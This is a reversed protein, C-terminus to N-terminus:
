IQEALRFVFERGNEYHNGNYGDNIFIVYPYNGINIVDLSAKLGNLGTGKKFAYGITADYTFHSPLREALGPGSSLGGGFYGTGTIWLDGPNYTLGFNVTHIEAHDLPQYIGQPPLLAQTFAFDGGSIGEGEALSYTYNAFDSWDKDLKGRLSVEIGQAYGQAYNFPQDIGTNLLQSEDLMNTALKLYGNLTFLHTGMQQAWGAEFYDDKEAKINYPVLAQGVGLAVFTDKLDEPPAPMFQKGYFLHFKTDDSALISLGIRPGWNSDDDQVQGSAGGINLTYQIADFRVGGSLVLWKALTLEDQVYVGEEFGQDMSTDIGPPLTVPGSGTNSVELVSVPGSSQTFLLQTGAKILNNSDPRWTYDVQTGYNDSTRDQSYSSDLLTVGDNNLWNAAISNNAPNGAFALDNAPDGNFTLNSEKFYPSIQIFSEDDFTHVWSFEVYRNAEAQTDNTTSPVYNFPGNGLPDLNGNFYAFNPGGPDFSSDYDPIQNFKNEVFASLIFKNFNDAQWDLKMFEDSSYEQDHVVDESGGNQDANIDAPAPTDLGRGTSSANVSLLYHWAGSVDAGGYTAYSQTQNYSGFSTGIEGGQETSGSKTVINIVGALRNGFEPQLGGTLIEMHDINVPTFAEGFSGGVSDPLQIGDVQYQLNAHNGRTFVQGFPGEWFGPTTDYLLHRIDQTNGQPLQEIDSQDLSRSSDPASTIENRKATVKMQMEGPSLRVELPTNSAAVTVTSKYPVFGDATVSVVYDGITLPFAQFTGTASSTLDKEIGNGTITVKANAVAVGKDDLVTGSLAGNVTALARTTCFSFLALLLLLMKNYTTM